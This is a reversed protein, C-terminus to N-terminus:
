DDFAMLRYGNNVYDRNISEGYIYSLDNGVTDKLLNQNSGESMRGNSWEVTRGNSM